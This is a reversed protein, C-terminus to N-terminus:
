SPENEATTTGAKTAPATDADGGDNAGAADPTGTGAASHSSSDGESLVVKVRALLYTKSDKNTGKVSVDFLWDVEQLSKVPLRDSKLGHPAADIHVKVDAVKLRTERIVDLLSKAKDKDELALVTVELARLADAIETSIKAADTVAKKIVIANDTRTKAATVAAKDAAIRAEKAATEAEEATKTNEATASANATQAATEATARAKKAEDEAEVANEAALDAKDLEDAAATDATTIADAALTMTKLASSLEELKKGATSADIPNETTSNNAVENALTTRHEDLKEATSENDLETIRKVQAEFDEPLTQAFSLAATLSIETGAKLTVKSGTDDLRPGIAASLSWPPKAGVPFSLKTLLDQDLDQTVEDDKKLLESVRFIKTKSEDRPAEDGDIQVVFEILPVTRQKPDSTILLQEGGDYASIKPLGPTTLAAAITLLIMPVVWLAFTPLHRYNWSKLEWNPAAETIVAPTGKGRIEDMGAATKRREYKVLSRVSALTLFTGVLIIIFGVFFAAFSSGISITGIGLEMSMEPTFSPERKLFLAVSAGSLILAYGTTQALETFRMFRDRITQDLNNSGSSVWEFERPTLGVSLMLQDRYEYEKNLDNDLLRSWYRGITHFFSDLGLGLVTSGLVFLLSAMVGTQTDSFVQDTLSQTTLSEFALLIASVLVMGPLTQFAVKTFTEKSTFNNKLFEQM